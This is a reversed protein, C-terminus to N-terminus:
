LTSATFRQLPSANLHHLLSATFRELPPATGYRTGGPRPRAHPPFPRATACRAYPQRPALSQPHPVGPTEKGARQPPSAAVVPRVAPNAPAAPEWLDPPCVDGPVTAQLGRQTGYRTGGPRPRAHPLSHGHRQAGPMLSARHWRNRTPCEQHKKALGNHRRLRWLPGFLPTQPPRLSGCIRRAFTGRFPQKFFWLFCHSFSDISNSIIGFGPIGKRNTGM